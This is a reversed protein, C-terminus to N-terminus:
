RAISIIFLTLIVGLVFAIAIAPFPNASALLAVDDAADHAIQRADAMNIRSDGNVDLRQLRQAVIAKIGNVTNAM